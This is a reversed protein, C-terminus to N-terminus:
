DWSINFRLFDKRIPPTAAPAARTPEAKKEMRTTCAAQVLGAVMGVPKAAGQGTKEREAVVTVWAWVKVREAV